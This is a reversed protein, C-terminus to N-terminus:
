NPDASLSHGDLHQWRERHADHSRAVSGRAIRRRRRCYAVCCAGAVRDRRCLRRLIGCGGALRGPLADGPRARDGGGAFAAAARGDDDRGALGTRRGPLACIRDCLESGRMDEAVAGLAGSCTNLSGASGTTAETADSAGDTAADTEVSDLRSPTRDSAVRERRGADGARRGGTCRGPATTSGHSLTCCVRVVCSQRADAGCSYSVAGGGAASRCACDSARM